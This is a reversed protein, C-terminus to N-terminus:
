ALQIKWDGGVAQPAERCSVLAGLGRCGWFPALRRGCSLTGALGSRELHPRPNQVTVKSVVVWRPEKVSPWERVM